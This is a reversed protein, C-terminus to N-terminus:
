VNLLFCFSALQSPLATKKATLDRMNIGIKHKDEAQLFFEEFHPFGLRQM